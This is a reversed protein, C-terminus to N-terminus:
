PARGSGARWARALEGLGDAGGHWEAAESLLRPLERSRASGRQADAEVSHLHAIWVPLFADLDPLEARKAEGIAALSADEGVFRLRAIADLLATPRESPSATEYTARLYRAKAEGVDVSVMRQASDPGCFAEAEGELDFAALLRGLAERALQMDGELFVANAAAFLDDM